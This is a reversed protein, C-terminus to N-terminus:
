PPLKLSPLANNENEFAFTWGTPPYPMSRKYRRWIGEVTKSDMQKHIAGLAEAVISCASRGRASRGTPKLRYHDCVAAVTSAITINRLLENRLDPGVGPQPPPVMGAILEMEYGDFEAPLPLRRSKLELIENRLIIQADEEGVRALALLNLRGDATLLMLRLFRRVFARSEAAEFFSGSNGDYRHARLVMERAYTLAETSQITAHLRSL